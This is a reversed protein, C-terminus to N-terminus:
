ASAKLPITGLMFRYGTPTVEVELSSWASPLTEGNCRMRAYTQLTKVNWGRLHAAEETSVWESNMEAEVAEAHQLCTLGMRVPAADEGLYRRLPAVEAEIREALRRMFPSLKKDSM